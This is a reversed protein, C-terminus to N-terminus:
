GRTATKLDIAHIAKGAAIFLRRGDAGGFALNGVIGPTAIRGLRTGDAHFVRVGDLCAVYVRGGADVKLGDPVGAELAAFTRPPGLRGGSLPFALVMRAGEPNLSAGSESVYLTRGDPSFALGNPQDVADTMAEVRGPEPIRYVRRATQAPEAQIGEEPETIGYVPDTFWIAGDPGLTADNPSNLPKGDYADALVTVTGDAERRVVRRTRHECTVLRGRADLTNGNANNSPAFLPSVLGDGGLLDIRNGKVDSFVLGGLGAVWCPGECWRGQGYLTRLRADPDIVATFRPDDVRVVPEAAQALGPRVAALGLVGGLITRRRLTQM